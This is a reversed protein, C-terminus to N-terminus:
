VRLNMEFGTHCGFSGGFFCGLCWVLGDVFLVRVRPRWDDLKALGLGFGSLGVWTFALALCGFEIRFRVKLADFLYMLLVDLSALWVLGSVFDLGIWSVGFRDMGSLM